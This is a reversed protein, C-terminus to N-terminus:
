DVMLRAIRIPSRRKLIGRQPQERVESAAIKPSSAKASLRCCIGM